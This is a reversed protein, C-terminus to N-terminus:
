SPANKRAARETNFERYVSLMYDYNELPMGKFITNSTAFIYGGGPSAQELCYRASKRIAEAPGEQLLSCQVNGMLPLKGHCVAKVKAIDMGAMPDVSQFLDAGLSLYDDMIPMINGDTHVFALVGRDKIYQVARHLYPTVLEHFHTPSIFPGANFAVDNVLHIFDTGAEILSDFARFSRQLKEEAVAHLREPAEALDVAFADWDRISEISWVTDGIISGLLVSDGLYKRAYPLVAPDAWPYWLALADWQYQGVIRAYLAACTEYFRERDAATANQLGQASPFDQDFAEQTLQFVTEFHPIRDPEEFRLTALMREKSTM